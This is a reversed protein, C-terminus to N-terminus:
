GRTPWDAPPEALDAPRAYREGIEKFRALMNDDLRGLQNPAGNLLFSVNRRNSDNIKDLAWDATKLEMDTDTTRWFWTKTLINCSAGPGNFSDSIEQGAANEYFAIDTLALDDCGINMLLCDPQLEKVLQDIEQFPLVEYRPGGWEADWGDIILFPIEGYETLLELIQNKIFQKDEPTCKNRNIKHHLDLISFYLGAQIGEKRFADLYEKVVDTPNAANRVCHETHRTPWLSFGEHHKATLAAFTMGASKAATAWQACDLATPNWDQPDFVFRRPQGGNEHAFEWDEIESDAFQFTASNFHIFMGSRQNVFWQQRELLHQNKM